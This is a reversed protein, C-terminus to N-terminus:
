PGATRSSPDFFHPSRKGSKGNKPFVVTFTTGTEPASAVSIKGGHADVISKAIALGLGYGGRDRDRAADARYFREFLHAQHKEPIAPGTNHVALRTQDGLADLTVTVTGGEGAYKVANDLLIVTLRRLQAEDGLVALGPDILDDLTIGAEFAVSEFSMLSSVVLDSLRVSVPHVPLQAADSKALFLLDNVLAKMRTAEERTYDIWKAEEGVTKDQHALVIDTNALIVTIPTKLEHSADAVFQRQKDWAEEVPKLSRKALFRSILYFALLAGELIALSILLQRQVTDVVIGDQAISLFRRGNGEQYLYSVYLTGSHFNGREGGQSLIAEAQSQAMEQTVTVGPAAEIRIVEGEPSLEVAFAPVSLFDGSRSRAGESDPPPAELPQDFRFEQRRDDKLFEMSQYLAHAVQNSAQKWATFVQVSLVAVLVLSVLAMNTLIFKHRLQQIM